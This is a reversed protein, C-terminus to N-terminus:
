PEELAFGGFRIAPENDLSDFPLNLQQRFRYYYATILFDVLRDRTELRKINRIEM